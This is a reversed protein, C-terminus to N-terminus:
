MKGVAQYLRQRLINWTKNYVSLSVGSLGYKWVHLFDGPATIINVRERNPDFHIERATYKYRQSNATFSISFSFLSIIFYRTM